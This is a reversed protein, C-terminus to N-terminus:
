KDKKGLTIYKKGDYVKIHTGDPSWFWNADNKISHKSDVTIKIGDQSIDVSAIILEKTYIAEMAIKNSTPSTRPSKIPEGVIDEIKVYLEVNFQYLYSM